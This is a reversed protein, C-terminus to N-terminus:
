GAVSNSPAQNRAGLCVVREAQAWSIASVTSCCRRVCGTKEKEFRHWSHVRTQNVEVFRQGNPWIVHGFDAWHARMEVLRPAIEVFNSNCEAMTPVARIPQFQGIKAVNSFTRPQQKPWLQNFNASNTGDRRAARIAVLPALLKGLSDRCGWGRRWRTESRQVKKM